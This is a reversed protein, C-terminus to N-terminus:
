AAAAELADLTRSAAHSWSFAKARLRGRKTLASALQDNGALELMARALAETDMPPFLLAADGAIDSMPRAASTILPVGASLAEIIPIGFGEFTSPFVAFRAKKYYDLIKGRDLWGTILIKHQLAHSAIRMEIATTHFGRMGALVLKWEPYQQSFLAFADVLREINKHPHLTSVCLVMPDTQTRELQFFEDGVGPEAVFIHDPDIGYSRAIDEKSTESVTLLRRSCKASSWVFFKWALLDTRKFYKPHHLHQLDHIVTVNPIGAFLPSTFGPNLVADFRGQRLRLPFRTQEYLIREPRFTASIGTNVCHFNPSDPVFRCGSERNCFVTFTHGRNDSALTRLIERLYIETGGVGGPILYLANVAFHFAM